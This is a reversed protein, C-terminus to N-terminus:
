DPIPANVSQWNRFGRFDTHETSVCILQNLFSWKNMPLEYKPFVTLAVVSPLKSSDVFLKVINDLTEKVKTNM